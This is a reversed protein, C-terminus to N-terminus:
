GGGGAALLEYVALPRRQVEITPLQVALLGKRPQAEGKGLGQWQGPLTLHQGARQARPHVALRQEEGWIEVTTETAQVQVRQGVWTWPVGYWGDEWRVYGDRGVKRDERLLPLMRELNPLPLLHGKEQLLRDQPRERTTGHVRADAVSGAWAQVQGNLDALESFRVGPWFNGKVYKIGSEVKGKTQARYPQCLRIEFGVRLALDLFRPNWIPRQNADRGLVVVKPNDYLCRQTVGGFHAFANLHCRIFTSVDARRTFELYIARSWGLVMVFIWLQRQHGEETLYAVKGWDVQAQEGPQTEFRVTAQPIHRRRWPHVYEKLITYGGTYGLNRLERLLVVCNDIGVALREQLYAKYPDLKSARGPKPKAKPVGPSRLYKRVSNQSIQLERAISRISQGSGHLEYLQKQEV